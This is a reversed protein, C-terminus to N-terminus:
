DEAEDGRGVGGGGPRSPNEPRPRPPPRPPPPAGPPVGDGGTASPAVGSTTLTRDSGGGIGTRTPNDAGTGTDAPADPSLTAACAACQGATEPNTWGCRPCNM